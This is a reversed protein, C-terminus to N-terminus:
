RSAHNSRDTPRPLNDAKRSLAEQDLHRHWASLAEETPAPILSLSFALRITCPRAGCTLNDRRPTVGCGGLCSAAYAKTIRGTEGRLGLRGRRNDAATRTRKARPTVIM